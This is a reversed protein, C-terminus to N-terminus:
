RSLLPSPETSDYGPPLLNNAALNALENDRIAFLRELDLATEDQTEFLDEATLPTPELEKLLPTAALTAATSLMPLPPTKPAGTTPHAALPLASDPIAASAANPPLPIIDFPDVPDVPRMPKDPVSEATQWFEPAPLETLPCSSAVELQWAIGQLWNAAQPEFQVIETLLAKQFAFAYKMLREDWHKVVLRVYIGEGRSRSNMVQIQCQVWGPPMGSKRVLDRLLVSVLQGRMATESGDHLISHQVSRSHPMSSHGPEARPSGFWGSLKKLLDTMLQLWLNTSNSDDCVKYNKITGQLDTNEGSM